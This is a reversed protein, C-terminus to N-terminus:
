WYTPLYTSLTVAYPSLTGFIRYHNDLLALSYPQCIRGCCLREREFLSGTKLRPGSAGDPPNGVRHIDVLRVGLNQHPHRSLRM